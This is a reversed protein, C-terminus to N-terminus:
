VKGWGIFPMAILAIDLDKVKLRATRVFFYDQFEVKILGTAVGARFATRQGLTSESNSMAIAEASGEPLNSRLVFSALIVFSVMIMNKM